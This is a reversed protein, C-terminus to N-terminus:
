QTMGVLVMTFVRHIYGTNPCQARASVRSGVPISIPVYFPAPSMDENATDWTGQLDPVVIRESGAGGLAIDILCSGAVRLTDRWTGICVFMGVAESPTAAILEAFAGKTNGVAGPDVITGQSTSLDAGMSFGSRLQGISSMTDASVGKVDVRWTTAASLSQQYRIALRAGAPLKMPVFISSGRIRNRRWADVFFNELIVFESGADGLALDILYGSSTDPTVFTVIFGPYDEALTARLEIWASKTNATSTGIVEKAASAGSDVATIQTLKGFGPWPLNTM